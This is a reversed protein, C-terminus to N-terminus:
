VTRRGIREGNADLVAVASARGWDPNWAFYALGDIPEVAVVYGFVTWLQAVATGEPAILVAEGAVPRFEDTLEVTGFYGATIEEACWSTPEGSGDVAAICDLGDAADTYRVLHITRGDFELTASESADTVDPGAAFEQAVGGLVEGAGPQLM